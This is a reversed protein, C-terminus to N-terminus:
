KFQEIEDLINHIQKRLEEIARKDQTGMVYDFKTMLNGIYERIEGTNEEYMRECRFILQKNAEDEWPLIKLYDLEAMRAKAEEESIKNDSQQLIVTREVGTSEVKIKVELLSNVDYTFTALISEEGAPKEPLKIKITGLTLNNKAFRSEGQLIDFEIMNQYDSATYYRRTRSVPIVTNREIIPSFILQNQSLKNKADEVISTGLTFPCVDTMVVEKIAENRTSMACQIAAGLAVAEDPNVSTNPFRGFMKTVLNKIIPFRTGGGIFIIDDIDDIDMGSDNLSHEIPKVIRNLLDMCAYEFDSIHIEAHYEASRINCTIKVIDANSFQKKAKECQNRLHAKENGKLSAPNINNIDCFMDVLKSTFDEGGVYNDGAIAHVEMIGDFFELISVDFTGGGLDFALITRDREIDNIGYALAAATPENIIRRVNLGAMIGAQKTAKRQLENFYAPVSIVADTVTEGTFREADEKLTSLMISSLMVADMKNSGTEFLKDTGMSRKFVEVTSNPYKIKRERATAGVYLQNNEDVSIVSPTLYEGLRNPILHPKGDAFYAALCNTTGLDIGIIM